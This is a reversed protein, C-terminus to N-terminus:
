NINFHKRILEQAVDKSKAIYKASGTSRFIGISSMVKVISQIDKPLLGIGQIKCLDLINKLNPLKDNVKTSESYIVDLVASYLMWNNYNPDKELKSKFESYSKFKYYENFYVGSIIMIEILTSLFVFFVTNSKNETSAETSKASIKSEHEKIELELEDKLYKIDTESKSIDAKLENKEKKLDSVRSRQQRNLPQISEIETQEKDKLDIKDKSVKIEEEIAAIKGNYVLTLSDKFKDVSEEAQIQIEKEKSSFEKAGTITAYFSLSTILISTILLPAVAKSFGNKIQQLSFKDFIERKLLELGSLLIITSVTTIIPNTIASSLIRYVLFYALFISALHGFISLYFMVRDINKFSKHFDQDKVKQELKKFDELNM